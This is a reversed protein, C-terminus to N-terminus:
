KKGELKGDKIRVIHSAKQAIAADHTVFVITRGQHHLEEFLSLIEKGTKSDLNGTPEDALLIAPDNALARAIAVRQQEGGSLQAPRHHTRHGLGVKELLAIARKRREKEPVGQFVLPMEVNEAATLAGILNFKQFVFGIKRGRLNALGDEDMGSVDVGDVAVKGHTPVDLAGIIHMLTSKGSGSPGMIAAFDGKQIRLTIGQLVRTSVEGMKYEKHVDHLELAATNREKM